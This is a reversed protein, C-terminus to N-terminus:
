GRFINTIKPKIKDIVTSSVTDKVNDVGEKLSQAGKAVFSDSLLKSAKKKIEDICGTKVPLIGYNLTKIADFADLTPYSEITLNANFELYQNSSESNPWTIGQLLSDQKGHPTPNGYKAFNSWLRVMRQRTIFNLSNPDFSFNDVRFMYPLDDGHATGKLSINYIKQHMSDDTDYSFRYYYVPEGSQRQMISRKTDIGVQFLIVSTASIINDIVADSLDMTGNKFASLITKIMPLEISSLNPFAEISSATTNVLDQITEVSKAFLVTEAATYGTIHPVKNFRNNLYKWILCQTLFKDQDKALDTSEISPKFPPDALGMTDAAKVIDMAPVELLFELLEDDTKAEKGLKKGLTYAQKVAASTTHFGWPCLPSASLAISRHFLGTSMDSLVHLDTSVGGASQGILTVNDPNGGFFIINEKVWLLLMRQDKLGYNGTAKEHNLNLFGLPGLRYNFTVLVVGEEIFFDPGYLSSDKYGGKFSGGHIWVVVPISGQKSDGFDLKPSYVNLYLCDESGTFQSEYIFDRQACHSREKTADWIGEWSKKQVPPQFRLHKLPPEAYPIGKFSSYEVSNIVTRLIEGRASGQQTEVLPSPHSKVGSVLGAFFLLLIDM